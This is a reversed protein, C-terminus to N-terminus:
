FFEKIDNMRQIFEDPTYEDYAAEEILLRANETMVNVFEDAARNEVEEDSLQFAWIIDLGGGDGDCSIHYEEGARGETVYGLSDYSDKPWTRSDRAFALACDKYKAVGGWSDRATKQKEALETLDKLILSKVWEPPTREDREWDQWTRRPMGFHEAIAQQSMQLSERVKKFENM